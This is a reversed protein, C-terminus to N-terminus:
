LARIGERDKHFLALIDSFNHISTRRTPLIKGARKKCLEVCLFHTPIEM